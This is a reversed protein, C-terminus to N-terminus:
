DSKPVVSMLQRQRRAKSAEYANSLVEGIDPIIWDFSDDSLSGLAPASFENEIPWVQSMGISEVYQDMEFINLDDSYKLQESSSGFVLIIIKSIAFVMLYTDRHEPPVATLNWAFSRHWSTFNRETGEFPAIWIRTGEPIKFSDRFDKRAKDDISVLVPHSFERVMVFCTAWRALQQRQENNLGTWNGVIFPKLIKSTANQLDSGWHNNCDACLVPLKIQAHDEEVISHMFDDGVKLTKSSRSTTYGTLKSIWAAFVHEGTLPKVLGCM